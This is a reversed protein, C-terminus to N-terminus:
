VSTLLPWLLHQWVIFPSCVIRTTRHLQRTTLPQFLLLGQFPGFIVKHLRTYGSQGITSRSKSSLPLPSRHSPYLVNKHGKKRPSNWCPTCCSGAGGPFVGLGPLDDSRVALGVAFQDFHRGPAHFAAEHQTARSLGSAKCGEHVQPTLASCSM